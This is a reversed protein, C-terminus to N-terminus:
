VGRAAQIQGAVADRRARDFLLEILALGLDVATGAGRSTVFRGDIEVPADPAVLHVGRVGSLAARVSDHCTVSVGALVGAEALVLPGACIAALYRREHRQRRVLELLGAESRLREVGGMGGPIFVLTWDRATLADSFESWLLDAGLRIQNRGVVVPRDMGVLVVEAGARRLLDIVAVAELEEVGDALPVLVSVVTETM